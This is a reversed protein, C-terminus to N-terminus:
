TGVSAVWLFAAEPIRARRMVLAKVAQLTTKEPEV